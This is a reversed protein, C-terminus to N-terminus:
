ACRNIWDMVHDWTRTDVKALSKTILLEGGMLSAMDYDASTTCCVTIKGTLGGTM